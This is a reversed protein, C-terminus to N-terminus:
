SRLMLLLLGALAPLLVGAPRVARSIVSSAETCKVDAPDANIGAFPGQGETIYTCAAPTVCGKMIAKRATGGAKTTGSVEICKTEAGVCDITEEHCQEPPLSYCGRCRRGNPTTDLSPVKAVDPSCGDVQCCAIIARKTKGKGFTMFTPGANCERSSMCGKHSTQNKERGRTTEIQAAACSDKGAPCNKQDGSCDEEPGSCVECRLGAGTALLAALLCAALPAKM